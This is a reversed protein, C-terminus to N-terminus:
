LLGINSAINLADKDGHFRIFAKKKNDSTRLTNVKRVKVKFLKSVANKIQGKSANENVQFTLTNQKELKAVNKDSSIPQLLIKTHDLPLKSKRRIEAGLSRIVRSAPKASRTAPRYFRLKNHVKHIAKQVPAKIQRAVQKGKAIKSSKGM